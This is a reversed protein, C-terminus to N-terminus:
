DYMIMNHQNQFTKKATSKIIRPLRRNNQFDVSFVCTHNTWSKSEVDFGNDVLLLARNRQEQLKTNKLTPKPIEDFM